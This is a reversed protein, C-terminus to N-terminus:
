IKPLSLPGGGEEYFIWVKGKGKKLLLATREWSSLSGGGKGFQNQCRCYDNKKKNLVGKKQGWDESGGKLYLPGGTEKYHLLNCSSKGGGKKERQNLNMREKLFLQRKGRELPAIGEKTFILHTAKVVGIGEGRPRDV